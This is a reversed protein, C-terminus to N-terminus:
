SFCLLLSTGDACEGLACEGLAYEGDACERLACEELACEGLACKVNGLETIGGLQHKYFALLTYM